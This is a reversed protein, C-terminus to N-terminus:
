RTERDSVAYPRRRPGEPRPASSVFTEHENRERLVRLSRLTPILAVAAVVWQALCYIMGVRSIDAGHRLLLVGGIVIVSTSLNVAFVPWPRRRVLCLSWYLLNIAMAPLALAVWRLLPAGHAVYESGLPALVFGSLFFCGIMGGLMMLFVLRLSRRITFEAKEPRAVAERVMSILISTLLLSAMTTIIWPVYFYGGETAGLRRTVLAPLFASVSASVATTVSEIAVFRGLERLPPLRPRQWAHRRGALRGIIIGNVVLVAGVMPLAWSWLVAVPASLSRMALPLLALRLAAVLTNEVPVWASRGFGILAGDQIVFVGNMVVCLGFALKGSGSGIVLGSALPTFLFILAGLSSAVVAAAYSVLIMRRAHRGAEPLFRAFVNILNLSGLGALFSITSIEASVSGVGSAKQYHATAVWFAFGLGGSLVASLILAVAGRLAPDKLLALVRPGTTKTDSRTLQLLPPAQTSAAANALSFLVQLGEHQRKWLAEEAARPDAMGGRTGYAPGGRMGSAPGGRGGYAPGGRMGPAPGGRAGNAPGGRMGSAPGTQARGFHQERAPPRGYRGARDPAFADAPYPHSAASRHEYGREYPGRAGEKRDTRLRSDPARPAMPRNPVRPTGSM